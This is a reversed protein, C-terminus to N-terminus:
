VGPDLEAVPALIVTVVNDRKSVINLLSGHKPVTRFRGHSVVSTIIFYNGKNGGM